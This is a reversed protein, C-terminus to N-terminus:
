GFFHLYQNSVMVQRGVMNTFYSFGYGVNKDCSRPHTPISKEATSTMTVKTVSLHPSGSRSADSNPQTATFPLRKMKAIIKQKMWRNRYANQLYM